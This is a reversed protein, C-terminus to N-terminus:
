EHAVKRKVKQQLAAKKAKSSLEKKSKLYNMAKSKNEKAEDDMKEKAKTLKKKKGTIEKVNNKASVEVAEHRKRDKSSKANKVKRAAASDRATQKGMYEANGM